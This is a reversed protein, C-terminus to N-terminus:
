ILGLVKMEATQEAESLNNFREIEEMEAQWDRNLAKAVRIAQEYSINCTSAYLPYDSIYELAQNGLKKSVRM